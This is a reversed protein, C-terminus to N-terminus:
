REVVFPINYKKAYWEGYSVAPGHIIPQRPTLIKWTSNPETQWVYFSCKDIYAVSKPIFVSHLTICNNFASANIRELGEPLVVNGGSGVYDFLINHVIVFGSVDALGKCGVFTSNTIKANQPITVSKLEACNMFAQEGITVVSEPINIEQLALCNFFADKEIITLDGEINVKKLCKCWRFVSSGIATIKGPINVTQLAYCKEFASNGISELSEPLTLHEIKKNQNFASEEISVVGDPVIVTGGTGNYDFLRDDYIVFGNSDCLKKCGSFACAGITAGDPINITKLKQCDAFARDGICCISDPLEVSKISRLIEGQAKTRRAKGSYFAEGAIATVPEQGIRQPVVLETEKGKYGTIELTGDSRKEFAWLKKMDSANFPDKALERQLKKEVSAKTINKEGYDVLFAVCQKAKAATAPQLFEEEYNMSTIKGATAYEAVSSVLDNKFIFPLLKKKQSYIYKRYDAVIEPNQFLEPKALYGCAANFLLKAEKLVDFPLNPAIIMPEGSNEFIDKGFSVTSGMIMVWRLKRCEAFAYHSIRRVGSPITVSTLKQHDFFGWNSIHTVGIPVVVDGGSGVYKKLESNFIHFDSANSM